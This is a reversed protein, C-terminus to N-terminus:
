AVTTWLPGYNRSKFSNLSLLFLGREVTYTKNSFFRGSWGGFINLMEGFMM